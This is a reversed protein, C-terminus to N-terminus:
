WPRLGRALPSSGPPRRQWPSKDNYVGRSRPHDRLAPTGPCRGTTFGARAPIIRVRYRAQGDLYLLGRALPSSGALLLKTSHAMHYVGRSRPHDEFREAGPYRPPTFGARAPIIRPVRGPRYQPRLLGRALPSSGARDGIQRLLLAYVGRSRPHDSTTVNSRSARLTFGARAPIIRMDAARLRFETPLGRALPSSGVLGGGPVVQREYVGRSRPHDGSEGSAVLCSRTFGARAPIIRAPPLPSEVVQRLGRALPSSGETSWVPTQTHPYVGRSRPHDAQPARRAPPPRTFGARAPIIRVGGVRGGPRRPLGRALPSSGRDRAGPKLRAGYVGRSRPHDWLVRAPAPVRATFGARAPIIGVEAGVGDVRRRLGRALPSSGFGSGPLSNM